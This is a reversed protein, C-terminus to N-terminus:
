IRTMMELSCTMRTLFIQSLSRIHYRGFNLFNRLSDHVDVVFLTMSACISNYVTM